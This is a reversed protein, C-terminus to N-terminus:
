RPTRRRPDPSIEFQNPACYGKGAGALAANCQEITYFGCNTGLGTGYHACWPAAHADSGTLSLAALALAVLPITRM